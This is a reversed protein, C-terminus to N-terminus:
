SPLEKRKRVKRRNELVKESWGPPLGRRRFPFSSPVRTRLLTEGPSGSCRLTKQFMGNEKKKEGVERAEGGSRRRLLGKEDM